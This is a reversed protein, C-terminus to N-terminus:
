KRRKIESDWKGCYGCVGDGVAQNYTVEGVKGCHRCKLPELTHGARKVDKVTYHKKM